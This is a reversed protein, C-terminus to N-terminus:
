INIQTSAVNQRLCTYYLVVKSRNTRLKTNVVKWRVHTLEVHCAELMNGMAGSLRSSRRFLCLWDICLGEARKVVEGVKKFVEWEKSSFDFSFHITDIFSM